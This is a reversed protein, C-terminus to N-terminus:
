VALGQQTKRADAACNIRVPRDHLLDDDGARVSEDPAAKDAVQRGCAMLRDREAVVFPPESKGQRVLAVISVGNDMEGARRQFGCAPALSRRREVDVSGADQKLLM